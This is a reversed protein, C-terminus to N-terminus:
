LPADSGFAASPDPASADAASPDAVIPRAAACLGLAVPHLWRQRQLPPQESGLQLIVAAGSRVISRQLAPDLPVAQLREVLQDAALSCDGTPEPSLDQPQAAALSAVLAAELQDAALRQQDLRHSWATGLCWLQLSCGAAGSFIVAALSTEILSM